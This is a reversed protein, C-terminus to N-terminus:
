RKRLKEEDLEKKAKELVTLLGVEYVEVDDIKAEIEELRYKVEERDEKSEEKAKDHAEM